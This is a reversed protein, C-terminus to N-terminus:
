KRALPSAHAPKPTAKLRKLRAPESISAYIQKEAQIVLVSAFFPFLLSLAKDLIPWFKVILSSSFPPTTCAAEGHVWTFGVMRLASKIAAVRSAQGRRFPTNGWLRWAGFYLPVAVVLTGGPALVRWAERLLDSPYAEHELAHLMLVHEIRNDPLPWCESATLCTLNDDSVPWYIAGQRAPMLAAMHPAPTLSKDVLRHLYPTTYGMGIITEDPRVTILRRLIDRLRQKVAEGLPSQYFGRLAVIDTDHIHSNQQM